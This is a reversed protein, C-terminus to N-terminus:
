QIICEKAEVQKKIKHYDTRSQLLEYIEEIRLAGQFRPADHVLKRLEESGDALFLNGLEKLVSFLKTISTVRCTLAWEYYRNMDCILQMAGTQSVQLRRINKTIVNFLRVGVESFFVEVTNKETVGGILKAHSSLCAVVKQCAVTPKWDSLTNEPPNYDTLQQHSLLIYECQNVLLQIAKDMGGAVSDDLIREFIKKEVVIDSLFDQEDIWLKVDENYYVDVMQQILDAIHVLEFFQLSDMNVMKNNDDADVPGSKSMVEIAAAFAPKMHKEGIAKLLAIFVRQVNPRIKTVDTTTSIVLARGLSEKNGHMLHLSLELSVLSNLSGNDLSYTTGETDTGPSEMSGDASIPEADTLLAQKDQKSKGDLLPGSGSSGTALSGFQVLSKTLTVPAFMIAKMTNMVYRKHAQAQEADMYDANGQEKKKKDKNRNNWKELEAKYRASLYEMEQDIYKDTYPKILERVGSQIVDVDVQVGYPNRAILDVFQMCSYVSTALTHLYIGLHERTKAASLIASMYESISDEFVKNVFLTMANVEPVFIKSILEAQKQCNGLTYDMFKAFDDALAYGVSPGTSTPLKSAVLSPNYTHDFFIPNKSIFVNVCSLGGNLQFSASANKRMEDVDHRDYANEFQGLVMSEFWEITTELSFSIEDNDEVFKARDLQRLCNLLAGIQPSDKYDKFLKSDNQKHRFDYYYPALRSYIAKFEDRADGSASSTGLARGLVGASAANATKEAASGPKQQQQQQKKQNALAAKLGGAGIILSSHKMDPLASTIQQQKQPDASSPSGAAGGLPSSEAPPTHPSTSSAQSQPTTSAATVLPPPSATDAAGSPAASPAPAASANSGTLAFSGTELYKTNASLYQGGPLQRLRVILEDAAEDAASGSAHGAADASASAATSASASASTGARLMGLARLKNTYVDDSYALIKFRRSVRAVKSLEAVPLWSFIRAVIDPPLSTIPKPPVAQAPQASAQRRMM